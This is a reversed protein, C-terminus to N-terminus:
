ESRRVTRDVTDRLSEWAERFTDLRQAGDPTLTYYKRPRDTETGWTAEVLGSSRLRALVPYLTGESAILGDAVLRRALDFGYTAGGQIHALVCFEVVGKRLSTM